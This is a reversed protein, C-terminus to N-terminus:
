KLVFRILSRLRFLLPENVWKPALYCPWLLISKVIDFAASVRRGEDYHMWGTQFYYFSLTRMWFLIDGRPVLRNQYASRLVKAINLKMRDANRSMNSSHRRILVLRERQLFVRYRAAIRIWMDRDESSRLASNFGGCAELAKRRAVVASPFFCSRFVIDHCLVEMDIEPALRKLKLPTGQPDIFSNRSAVIAFDPSLQGIKAVTKELYDPLWADDADLFAVYEGRAAEIGTNRATSLGANKQYIYRVREGYKAVIGATNDTSGDDVVIVEYDVFTQSLVSDIAKSLYEAYNYAPIIASVKPFQIASSTRPLDM